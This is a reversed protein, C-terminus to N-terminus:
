GRIAHYPTINGDGVRLFPLHCEGRRDQGFEKGSRRPHRIRSPEGDEEIAASPVLNEEWCKPECCMLDSGNRAAARRAALVTACATRIITWLSAAQTTNSWMDAQTRPSGDRLICTVLTAGPQGTGLRM